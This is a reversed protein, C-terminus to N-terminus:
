LIIPMSLIIKINFPKYKKIKIKAIEDKKRSNKSDRQVIIEHYAL